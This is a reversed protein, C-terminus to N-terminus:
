NAISSRLSQGWKRWKMRTLATRASREKGRFLFGNADNSLSLPRFFVLTVSVHEAPVVADTRAAALAAAPPTSPFTGM